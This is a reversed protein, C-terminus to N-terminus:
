LLLQNIWSRRWAYSIAGSLLGLLQTPRGAQRLLASLFRGRGELTGVNSKSRRRQWYFKLRTSPNSPRPWRQLILNRILILWSIVSSKSARESEIFRDAKKILEIAKASDGSRYFEVAILEAAEGGLGSKDYRIPGM